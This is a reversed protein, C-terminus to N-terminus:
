EYLSAYVCYFLRLFKKIRAKRIQVIGEQHLIHVPRDRAHLIGHARALLDHDVAIVVHVSAGCHCQNVLEQALDPM